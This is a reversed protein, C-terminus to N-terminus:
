REDKGRNPKRGYLHLTPPDEMEITSAVSVRIM